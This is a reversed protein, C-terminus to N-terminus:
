YRGVKEEEELLQNIILVEELVNQNLLHVMM